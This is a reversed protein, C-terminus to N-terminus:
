EFIECYQSKNDSYFSLTSSPIYTSHQNTSTPSFLIPNYSPVSITSNATPMYKTASSSTNIKTHNNMVSHNNTNNVNYVNNTLTYIPTVLEISNEMVNFNASFKSFSPFSGLQFENDSINASNNEVTILNVNNIDWPQFSFPM